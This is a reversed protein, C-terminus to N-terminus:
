SRSNPVLYEGIGTAQASRAAGAFISMEKFGPKNLPSILMMVSFDSPYERSQLCWPPLVHDLHQLHYRALTLGAVNYGLCFYIYIFDVEFIVDRLRKSTQLAGHAPQM